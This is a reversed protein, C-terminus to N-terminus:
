LLYGRERGAGEPLKWGDVCSACRWYSVGRATAYRAVNVSGCTPCCIVTVQRQGPVIAPAPPPLDDDSWNGADIWPEGDGGGATM